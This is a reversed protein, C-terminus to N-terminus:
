VYQSAMESFIQEIFASSVTGLPLLNGSWQSLTQWVLTDRDVSMMRKEAILNMPTGIRVVFDILSEGLENELQSLVAKSGYGFEGVRSTVPSILAISAELKTVGALSSLENALYWLPWVWVIHSTKLQIEHTKASLVAIKAMLCQDEGALEMHFAQEAYQSATSLIEIFQRTDDEEETVLAIGAARLVIELIGHLIQQKTLQSYVSPDYQYVFMGRHRPMVLRRRCPSVQLVANANAESGTGLTTPILTVGRCSGQPITVIGARGRSVFPRISEEQNYRALKVKDLVSGGGFAYVNKHQATIKSLEEVQELTCTATVALTMNASNKLAKISNPIALDDWIQDYIFLTM